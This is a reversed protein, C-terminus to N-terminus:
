SMEGSTRSDSITSARKVREADEYKYLQGKYNVIIDRASAPDEPKMRVNIVPGGFCLSGGTSNSGSCYINSATVRRRSTDSWSDNVKQSEDIACAPCNLKCIPEKLNSDCNGLTCKYSTKGRHTLDTMRCSNKFSQFEKGQEPEPLKWPDAKVEPGAYFNDMSLVRNEEAFHEVNRFSEKMATTKEVQCVFQGQVTYFCGKNM